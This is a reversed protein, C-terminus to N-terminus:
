SSKIKAGDRSRHGDKWFKRVNDLPAEFLIHFFFAAFLAASASYVSRMVNSLLTFERVQRATYWDYRIYSGHIIYLSFYLKSIVKMLSMSAVPKATLAQSEKKESPVSSSVVPQLRSGMAYAIANELHSNKNNNAKSACKVYMVFDYTDNMLLLGAIFGLIYLVRHTVAFIASTVNEQPFNFTNWYAPGFTVIVFCPYLMYCSLRKAWTMNLDIAGTKYYYAVLLGIFYSSSHCYTPFYMESLYTNANKIDGEGIIFFPAYNYLYAKAGPILMGAFIMLYCFVLGANKNLQILFIAIAGLAFLQFDAAAYWTQTLCLDNLRDYNNILLVNKWWNNGCNNVVNTSLETFMPGSGYLPWLLDIAVASLIAPMFRLWRFFINKLLSVISGRTDTAKYTSMIASIGSLFFFLEIATFSILPQHFMPRFLDKYDELRALKVMARSDLICSFAHISSAFIAFLTRMNDIGSIRDSDSRMLKSLNFNVSFLRTYSSMTTKRYKTQILGYVDMVTSLYVITVMAVIYVSAFIQPKTLKNFSFAISERSDCIPTANQRVCTDQTTLSVVTAVEQASCASPMCLAYNLPFEGFMPFMRLRASLESGDDFHDDSTLLKLMCYQGSLHQDGNHNIDLCQDYDGLSSITGELLASSSKASADMFQYAWLQGDQTERIITLLAQACSASVQASLEGSLASPLKEWLQSTIGKTMFNFLQNRNHEAGDKTSCDSVNHVQCDSLGIVLLVIVTFWTWSLCHRGSPKM